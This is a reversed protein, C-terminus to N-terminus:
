GNGGATARPELQTARQLARRGIDRRLHKGAARHGATRYIQPRLDGSDEKRLKASDAGGGEGVARGDLDAQFGPWGLVRVDRREATIASLM